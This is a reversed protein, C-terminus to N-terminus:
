VRHVNATEGRGCLACAHVDSGTSEAYAHPESERGSATPCESDSASQPRQSRVSPAPGSAVESAQLKETAWQEAIASLRPDSPLPSSLSLEGREIMTAVELLATAKGHYYERQSKGRALGTMKATENAAQKQMWRGLDALSTITFSAMSLRRLTFHLFSFSKDTCLDLLM